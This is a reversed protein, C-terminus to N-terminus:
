GRNNDMENTLILKWHDPTNINQMYPQWQIPLELERTGLENHIAYVSDVNSSPARNPFYAPLPQTCFFAGHPHNILEHLAAVPLLPMDIPAILAGSSDAPLKRLINSLARGPGAFPTQDPICPYGPYNGSVWIQTAGTAILKAISHDLLPKGQWMLKAKDTGMRTSKGGALVIGIISIAHNRIPM